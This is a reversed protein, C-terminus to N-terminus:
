NIPKKLYLKIAALASPYIEKPLSNTPWWKYEKIESRQLKVLQQNYIGVFVAENSHRYDEDIIQDGVKELSLDLGVEEYLERSATKSVDESRKKHGGPLGWWNRHGYTHKVLLVKNQDKVIIAAGFSQPRRIFWFILAFYWLIFYIYKRM